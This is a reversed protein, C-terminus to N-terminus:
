KNTRITDLGIITKIYLANIFNTNSSVIANTFDALYLNADSLNTDTLDANTFNVYTLFAGSLNAKYLNAGLLNVGTLDVNTLNVRSLNSKILITGCLIKGSLDMGSLDMGSLDYYSLDNVSLDIKNDYAELLDLAIERYEPFSSNPTLSKIFKIFKKDNEDRYYKVKEYSEGFLRSLEWWIKAVRIREETTYESKKEIDLLCLCRNFKCDPCGKECECEFYEDGCDDCKYAQIMLIIHECLLEPDSSTIHDMFWTDTYYARIFKPNLKNRLRNRDKRVPNRKRVM